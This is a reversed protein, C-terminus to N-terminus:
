DLGADVIGTGNIELVFRDNLFWGIYGDSKERIDDGEEPLEWEVRYKFKSQFHREDLQHNYSM